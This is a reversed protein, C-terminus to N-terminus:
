FTLSRKAVEKLVVTMSKGITAKVVNKKQIWGTLTVNIENCMGLFWPRQGSEKLHEDQDQENADVGCQRSAECISVTM